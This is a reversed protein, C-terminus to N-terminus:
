LEVYWSFELVFTLLISEDAPDIQQMNSFNYFQNNQLVPCQELISHFSLNKLLNNVTDKRFPESFKENRNWDWKFSKFLLNQLQRGLQDKKRYM